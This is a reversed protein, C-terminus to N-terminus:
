NKASEALPVGAERLVDDFVPQPSATTLFSGDGKEGAYVLVQFCEFCIVFEVTEGEYTARIGHRPNFCRAVIGDNEGVGKKLAAVVKARTDADKIQTRGLVKWGHFDDESEEQKRDPDLSLLEFEDAKDLASRANEPIKSDASKSTCGVMLLAAFALVSIRLRGM